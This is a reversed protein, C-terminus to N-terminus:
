RPILNKSKEFFDRCTKEGEFNGGIAYGGIADIFKLYVEWREKNNYYNKFIKSSIYM